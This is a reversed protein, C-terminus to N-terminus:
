NFKALTLVIEELCNNELRSRGDGLLRSLPPARRPFSGPLSRAKM